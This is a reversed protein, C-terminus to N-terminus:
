ADDDTRPNHDSSSNQRDEPQPLETSSPSTAEAASGHKPQQPSHHGQTVGATPNHDDPHTQQDGGPTRNEQTDQPRTKDGVAPTPGKFTEPM